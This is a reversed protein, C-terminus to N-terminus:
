FVISVGDHDSCRYPHTKLEFAHICADHLQLNKYFIHDLWQPCEELGRQERSSVKAKLTAVEKGNRYFARHTSLPVQPHHPIALQFKPAVHKWMFKRNPAHAMDINWDGCVVTPAHPHALRRVAEWVRKLQSEQAMMALPSPRLTLYSQLHLNFVNLLGKPGLDILAWQLGQAAFINPYTAWPFPTWKRALIPYRSLITTGSDFLEASAWSPAQPLVHYHHGHVKAEKILTHYRSSFTSFCEQLCLVDFSSLYLRCFEKLREEKSDCWSHRVVPGPLMFLNLSLLRVKTDNRISIDTSQKKAKLGEKIVQRPSPLAVARHWLKFVCVVLFGLCLLIWTGVIIVHVVTKIM